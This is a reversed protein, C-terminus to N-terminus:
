DIGPGHLPCLRERGALDLHQAHQGLTLAVLGDSVMEADGFVGHLKMDSRDERLQVGAGTGLGDSEANTVAEDHYLRGTGADSRTFEPSVPVLTVPKLITTM